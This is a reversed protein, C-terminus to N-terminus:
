GGDGLRPQSAEPARREPAPVTTDHSLEGSLEALYEDARASEELAHVLRLEIKCGVDPRETAIVWLEMGEGEAVPAVVSWVAGEVTGRHDLGRDELVRGVRARAGALDLGDFHTVVGVHPRRENM